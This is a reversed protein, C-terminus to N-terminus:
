TFVINDWWHRAPVSFHAIGQPDVLAGGRVTVEMAEGCDGCTTIVQADAKLMAAIGLADWICNGWFARPGAEVRFPTPVASFPNAMLIEGSERQLVIVHGAALRQYAAQVASVPQALSAATDALLPVRGQTFIHEYIARRVEYDLTQTAETM